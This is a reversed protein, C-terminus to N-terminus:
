LRRRCRSVKNSSDSEEGEDEAKTSSESLYDHSSDNPPWGNVALIEAFLSGVPEHSALPSSPIQTRLASYLQREWDRRRASPTEPLSIRVDREFELYAILLMRFRKYFRTMPPNNSVILTRPYCFGSLHSLKGLGGIRRGVSGSRYEDFIVKIVTTLDSTYSSYLFRIITYAVVWFFSEIDDQLTHVKDPRGVLCASMFRWTGARFTREPGTEIAEIARALDWDNLFGKGDTDVLINGLSVDCHLINCKEYVDRHARFADYVAKLFDKSNEFDELPTGVKDTAFRTHTRRGTCEWQNGVSWRGQLYKATVTSQWVGELDDGCLLVPVRETIGASNITRLTDSEKEMAPETSRWSDKVFVVKDSCADYGVYGRTAKGAVSTPQAVPAWVLVEMKKRETSRDLDQDQIILKYVSWDDGDEQIWKFLKEKALVTEVATARTVTPDRGKTVENSRSVRWLFALLLDGRQSYDFPASVVAGGRDFRIFRAHTGAMQIMFVHTRHQHNLITKAYSLLEDM